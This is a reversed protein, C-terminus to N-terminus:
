KCMYKQSKDNWSFHNSVKEFAKFLVTKESENGYIVIPTHYYREYSKLPHLLIDKWTLIIKGDYPEFPIISVIKKECEQCRFHYRLTTADIEIHDLLAIIKDYQM